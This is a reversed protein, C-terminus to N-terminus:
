KITAQYIYGYEDYEFSVEYNTWKDFNNKLNAIENVNSTNIEGYIVNIIDDKTKNNTIIEDLLNNVSTGYKTGSYIEFSVNYWRADDKTKIREITIKNVYGKENYDLTVEYSNESSLSNKINKIEETDSTTINNYVINIQKDSNTKNNTIVKDLLYTVSSGYKTGSYFEFDGNYFDVDFKNDTIQKKIFSFLGSSNDNNKKEKRDVVIKNVLIVIIIIAIIILIFMLWKRPKIEQEDFYEKKDM